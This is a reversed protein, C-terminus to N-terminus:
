PVAGTCLPPGECVRACGEQAPELIGHKLAVTELADVATEIDEQTHRANMTLRLISQGRPVAPFCVTGAKVGALFLDRGVHYLIEEQGVPVPIIPSELPPVSFGVQKLRQWMARSNDWLRERHAPEDDMVRLSETLGACTAAPLSATFMSSHAFLRLYEILAADGCVYGGVAGPAKSFTGMLIDACGPLGFHEELGRGHAGIVGLAHAEDLMLRANHKRTVDCLEPLRALRGHMSFVGDTVVLVAGKERHTKSLIRDLHGPDTYTDPKKQRSEAWRCGDHISAHSYRDRVVQDHAGTIATITGINAAYGSPFIIARERGHFGAVTEELERLYRNTGGLLQASPTGYGVDTVARQVASNVRPHLHLGLYSNSDFCVLEREGGSYPDVVRIRHDLPGILTVRYMAQYCGDQRMENIFRHLDRCKEFLDQSDSRAFEAISTDSCLPKVAIQERDTYM